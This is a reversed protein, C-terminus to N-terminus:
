LTLIITFSGTANVALKLIAVGGSRGRSRMKRLYFYSCIVLFGSSCANRSQSQILSLVILIQMM